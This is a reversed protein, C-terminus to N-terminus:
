MSDAAGSNFSHGSDTMVIRKRQGADGDNDTGVYQMNFVHLLHSFTENGPFKHLVQELIRITSDHDGARNFLRALVIYPEVESPDSSLSALCTRITDKDERTLAR